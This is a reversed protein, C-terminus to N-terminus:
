YTLHLLILPELKIQVSFVISGKGQIQGAGSHMWDSVPWDVQLRDGSIGWSFFVCVCVCVFKQASRSNVNM